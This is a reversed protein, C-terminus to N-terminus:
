HRNATRRVHLGRSFFYGFAWQYSFFPGTHSFFLQPTLIFYFLLEYNRTLPPRCPCFLFFFFETLVAQQPFPLQNCDHFLFVLFARSRPTLLRMPQFFLPPCVYLPTASFQFVSGRFFTGLSVILYYPSRLCSPQSFFNGQNRHVPSGRVSPSASITLLRSRPSPFSLVRLLM